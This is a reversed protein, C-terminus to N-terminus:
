RFFNKLFKHAVLKPCPSRILRCLVVSVGVTLRKRACRLLPLHLHLLHAVLLLLTQRLLLLHGHLHAVSGHVQYYQLLMSTRVLSKTIVFVHFSVHM